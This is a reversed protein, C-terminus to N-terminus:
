KRRNTACIMLPYNTMIYPTNREKLADMYLPLLLVDIILITVYYLYDYIIWYLKLIDVADPVSDMPIGHETTVVM